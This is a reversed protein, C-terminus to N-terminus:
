RSRRGRFSKREYVLRHYNALRDSIREGYRSCMQEWNLNTTIVTILNRDYRSHLLRVMPTIKNGYENIVEEEMGVDDMFLCPYVNVDKWGYFQEKGRYIDGLDKASILRPNSGKNLMTRFLAIMLSTKGIGPPGSILLNRRIASHQTLWAVLGNLFRDFFEMDEPTAGSALIYDLYNDALATKLVYEQGSRFIPDPGFLIEKKTRSNLIEQLSPTGRVATRREM